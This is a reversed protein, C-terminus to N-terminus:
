GTSRLRTHVGNFWNIACRSADHAASLIRNAAAPDQGVRDLVCELENWRETTGRASAALFSCGHSSQPLRAEVHRLVTEHLVSSREVVYLWGLAEAPDAFPAILCQPLQAVQGATIGLNMLDQALYGSLARRRLDIMAHLRPTYAAASEVSGEFGYMQSLADVFMARTLGPTTLRRFSADLEDHYPRTDMDLRARMRENASM